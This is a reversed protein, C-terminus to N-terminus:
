KVREYYKEEIMRTKEEVRFLEGPPTDTGNDYDNVFTDSEWLGHIEPHEPMNEPDFLIIAKTFFNGRRRHCHYSEGISFDLIDEFV